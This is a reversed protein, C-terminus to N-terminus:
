PEEKMAAIAARLMEAAHAYAAAKAHLVEATRDTWRNIQTARNPQGLDDLRDAVDRMATEWRLFESDKACEVIHGLAEKMTAGGPPLNANEPSPAALACLEVLVGESVALSVGEGIRLGNRHKVVRVEYGGDVSKVGLILDAVRTEQTVEYGCRIAVAVRGTMHADVRAQEADERATTVDYDSEASRHLNEVIREAVWACPVGECRLIVLGERVGGGLVDDLISFGTKIPGNM